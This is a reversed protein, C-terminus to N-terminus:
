PRLSMGTGPLFLRHRRARDPRGMKEYLAALRQHVALREPAERLISKLDRAAEELNGLTEHLDALRTWAWIRVERFRTNRAMDLVTRFENEAAAFDESRTGSAKGRLWLLRGLKLRALVHRPEEEIVGRFLREAAPGAEPDKGADALRLNVEGLNIRTDVHGPYLAHAARYQERAGQLDGRAVLANGFYNRARFNDPALAVAKGWLCHAELYDFQRWAARVSWLGLVAVVLALVWTPLRGERLTSLRVGVTVVGALFLTLPFYLRHESMVVNLPIISSTPSLTLPLWVLALALFPRKWLLGLAAGLYLALGLISVWVRTETLHHAVPVHHAINLHVPWAVLALYHWFVAAQTFLNSQVSRGGTLEHGAAYFRHATLNVGTSGMVEQRVLFYGGALLVFPLLAVVVRGPKRIRFPRPQLVWVEVLILAAPLTVAIAKSGLAVAALFWALGYWAIRRGRDRCQRARVYGLLAGLVGLAALQSSRCSVYVVGETALPHVLFALVGLCSWWPSVPGWRAKLLAGLLGYLVLGVGLHLLLNTLHFGLARRGWFLDDVAYTLLLVPRYMRTRPNEDFLGPDHFFALAHGLNLHPNRQVSHLDDYHFPAFLSPAYLVAPLVVLLLVLVKVPIKGPRDSEALTERM